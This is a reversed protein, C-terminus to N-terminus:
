KEPSTTPLGRVLTSKDVSFRPRYAVRYQLAISRRSVLSDSVKSVTTEQNKAPRRDALALWPGKVKNVDTPMERRGQRVRTTRRHSIKAQVDPCYVQSKDSLRKTPYEPINHYLNLRVAARRFEYREYRMGALSARVMCLYSPSRREEKACPELGSAHVRGERRVVDRSSVRQTSKSKEPWRCLTYVSAGEACGVVSSRTCFCEHALVFTVGTTGPVSDAAGLLAMLPFIEKRAVDLKWALYQQIHSLNNNSCSRRRRLRCTSQHHCPSCLLHSSGLPTNLLTSM